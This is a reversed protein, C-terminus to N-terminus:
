SEDEMQLFITRKEYGAAAAASASVDRKESLMRSLNGPQLDHQRCFARLGGAEECCRELEARVRDQSIEQIQM